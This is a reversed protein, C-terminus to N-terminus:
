KKRKLNNLMREGKMVVGFITGIQNASALKLCFNRREKAVDNEVVSNELELKICLWYANMLMSDLLNKLSIGHM